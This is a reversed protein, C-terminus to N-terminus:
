FSMEAINLAHRSYFSESCVHTPLLFSYASSSRISPSSKFPGSLSSPWAHCSVSTDGRLLYLVSGLMDCYEYVWVCAFVSPVAELESTVNALDWFRWHHFLYVVTWLPTRPQSATHIRLHTGVNRLLVSGGDESYETRFISATDEESVNAGM